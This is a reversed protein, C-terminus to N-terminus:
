YKFDQKKRKKEKSSLTKTSSWNNLLMRHLLMRLLASLYKGVYASNNKKFMYLHTSIQNLTLKVHM